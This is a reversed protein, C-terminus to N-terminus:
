GRVTFAFRGVRKGQVFWSVMHKGPINSTIENVYLIGQEAKQRPACLRKKTPFKVCVTYHVTEGTNNRFFAGKDRRKNCVHAPKANPSTGCAVYHRYGASEALAPAVSALLMMVALAAILTTPRKM